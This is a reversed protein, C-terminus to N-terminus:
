PLFEHYGGSFGDVVGGGGGMLLDEAEWRREAMTKQSAAVM